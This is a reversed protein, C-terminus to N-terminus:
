SHGRIAASILGNKLLEAQHFAGVQGVDFRDLHTM